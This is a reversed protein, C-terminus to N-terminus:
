EARHVLTEIRIVPHHDRDFTRRTSRKRVGAVGAVGGVGGVGNVGRQWGFERVCEVRPQPM